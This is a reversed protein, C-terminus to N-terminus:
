RYFIVAEVPPITSPPMGTTQAHNSRMRAAPTVRVVFRRKLAHLAREIQDTRSHHTLDFLRDVNTRSIGVLEALRSKTMGSSKWSMYLQVKMYSLLPLSVYYINASRLRRTGTRLLAGSGALLQVGLGLLHPANHSLETDHHVALRTPVSEPGGSSFRNSPSLTGPM